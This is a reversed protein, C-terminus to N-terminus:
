PMRGVDTIGIGPKPAYEVTHNALLKADVEAGRSPALGRGSPLPQAGRVIGILGCVIGALMSLLPPIGVEASFLPGVLLLFLGAVILLKNM